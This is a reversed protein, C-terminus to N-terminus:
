LLLRQQEVCYTLWKNIFLNARWKDPLPSHQPHRPLPLTTQRLSIVELSVSDHYARLRADPDATPRGNQEFLYTLRLLSTYRTQEEIQLHLDVPERTRSRYDGAM